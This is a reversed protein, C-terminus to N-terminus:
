TDLRPSSTTAGTSGSAVHIAPLQWTLPSARQRRLHTRIHISSALSLSPEAGFRRSGQTSRRTNGSSCTRHSCPAVERLTGSKRHLRCDLSQARRRSRFRASIRLHRRIQSARRSCPLQVRRGLGTVQWLSSGHRVNKCRENTLPLLLGAAYVVTAIGDVGGIEVSKVRVIRSRHLLALKGLWLLIGIRRGISRGCRLHRAPSRRQRSAGRCSGSHSGASSVARHSGPRSLTDETLVSTTTDLRQDPSM